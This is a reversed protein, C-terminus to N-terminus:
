VVSKRDVDFFPDIRTPNYFGITGRTLKYRRGEFVLEGREVDSHGSLVPRDYTGVLQLDASAVLQRILNNDVHLTSPVVIRVDYKLPLAPAPAGGGAGPAAPRRATSDFISGPTDFAKSWAANKVTISGGLTPAKVSGRLFLDAAVVSRVGEPYRLRMDD